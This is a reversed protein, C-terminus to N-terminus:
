LIIRITTDEHEIELIDYKRELKTQLDSLRQEWEQYIGCMNDLDNYFCDDPMPEEAISNKKQIDKIIKSMERCYEARIKARLKNKEQPSIGIEADERDEEVYTKHKLNLEM